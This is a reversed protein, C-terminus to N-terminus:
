PNRKSQTLVSALSKLTDSSQYPNTRTDVVTGETGHVSESEITHLHNQDELHRKLASKGLKALMSTSPTYSQTKKNYLGRAEGPQSM